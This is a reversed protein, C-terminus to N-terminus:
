CDFLSIPPKACTVQIRNVDEKAKMNSEDGNAWEDKAKM